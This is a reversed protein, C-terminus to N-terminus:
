VVAPFCFYIISYHTFNHPNKKSRPVPPSFGVLATWKMQDMWVIEMEMVNGCLLSVSEMTVSGSTMVASRSKDKLIHLTHVLM